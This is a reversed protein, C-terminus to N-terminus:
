FIIPSDFKNVSRIDRRYFFKATRASLTTGKNLFLLTIAIALPLLAFLNCTLL